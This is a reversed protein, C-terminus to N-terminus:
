REPRLTWRPLRRPRATASIPIPEASPSLRRWRCFRGNGTWRRSRHNKMWACSSPGTRPRWSLGAIDQVMDVFLPDTSLRFTESRHPQPGFATWIRRITTHSLRTVAAMSRISWHTADAPTTELTRTLVDAVQADCLRCPPGRSIRGFARRYPMRCLAAAVQRGRARFPWVRGRGGQDESWGCMAARDPMQRVAAASGQASM